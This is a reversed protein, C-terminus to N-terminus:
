RPFLLMFRNMVMKSIINIFLQADCDEEILKDISGELVESIGDSIALEDDAVGFKDGVNAADACLESFVWVDVFPIDIVVAVVAADAAAVVVVVAAAAVVVVDAVVSVALDVVVVVIDKKEVKGAVVVVVTVVGLVAIEELRSEADIAFEEGPPPEGVTEGDNLM